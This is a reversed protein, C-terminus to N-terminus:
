FCAIDIRFRLHSQWADRSEAVEAIVISNALKTDEELARSNFRHWAPLPARPWVGPAIGNSLSFPGSVFSGLSTFFGARKCILARNSECLNKPNEFYIM